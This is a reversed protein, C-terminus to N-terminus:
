TGLHLKSTGDLDGGRYTVHFISVRQLICCNKDSLMSCTKRPILSQSQKWRYGSTRLLYREAHDKYNLLGFVDVFTQHRRSIDFIRASKSSKAFFLLIWNSALRSKCKM